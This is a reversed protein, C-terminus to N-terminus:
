GDPGARRGKHPAHLFSERRLLLLSPVSPNHLRLYFYGIGARGLMLSPTDGGATEGPRQRGMKSYMEIGTNAIRVALESEKVLEGLVQRGYLFM